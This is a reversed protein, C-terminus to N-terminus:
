RLRPVKRPAQSVPLWGAYIHAPQTLYTSSHMGPELMGVLGAANAGYVIVDYTAVNGEGAAAVAMWGPLAALVWKITAATMAGGDQAIRVAVAGHQTTAGTALPCHAVQQHHHLTFVGSGMRKIPAVSLIEQHHHHLLATTMLVFVFIM